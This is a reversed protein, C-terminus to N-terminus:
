LIIRYDLIIKSELIHKELEGAFLTNSLFNNTKQQVRQSGIVTIDLSTSELTQNFEDLDVIIVQLFEISRNPFSSGSSNNSVILFQSDQSDFDPVDNGVFIFFSSITSEVKWAVVNDEFDFLDQDRSEELIEQVAAFIIVTIFTTFEVNDRRGSTAQDRDSFGHLVSEKFIGDFEDSSIKQALIGKFQSSTKDSVRTHQVTRARLRQTVQDSLGEGGDGIDENVAVVQDKLFFGRSSQFSGSFNNRLSIELFRQEAIDRSTESFGDISM